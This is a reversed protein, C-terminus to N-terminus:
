LPQHLRNLPKADGTEGCHDMVPPVTITICGTFRSATSLSSLVGRDLAATNPDSCPVFSDICSDVCPIIIAFHREVMSCGVAKCPYDIIQEILRRFIPRQLFQAHLLVITCRCRKCLNESKDSLAEINRSSSDNRTDALKVVAFRM